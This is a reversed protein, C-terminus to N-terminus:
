KVSEKLEELCKRARKGGVSSEYKGNHGGKKTKVEVDDDEISSVPNYDITAEWWNEPDAYFELTERMKKNHAELQKVYQTTKGHPRSSIILESM